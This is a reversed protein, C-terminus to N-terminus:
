DYVEKKKTKKLFFSTFFFFFAPNQSFDQMKKYQKM